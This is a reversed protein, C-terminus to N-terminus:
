KAVRVDRLGRELARAWPEGTSSWAEGARALEACIAIAFVDGDGLRVLAPADEGRVVEGFPGQALTTGLGNSMAFVASPRMAARLTPVDLNLGLLDEASSWIVDAERLIMRIARADRGKWLQWRANLDVVVITGARRAARAARCAAAAHAVVPSVGSLLLVQSSWGRPIAIPEEEDRSVVEASGGEVFFLGSRPRALTVGEADVDARAIEDRLARGSIDDTLVTALGVALGHRALAVAVNVAGGARLTPHDAKAKASWLAEGACIVDFGRTQGELITLAGHM